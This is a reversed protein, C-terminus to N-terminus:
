RSGFEQREFAFGIKTLPSLRVIEFFEALGKSGYPSFLNKYRVNFSWRTQNEQNVKCGHALGAAFFSASGYPVDLDVAHQKVFDSFEAFTKGRKLMELGVSTHERNVAFMSKTRFCDVLPVWVIVEFHSNNPADRHIPVQDADGPQHIVLNTTRQAVIDPGVLSKVPEFFADLLRETVKLERTCYEVLALRFKNLDATGLGNEHFRDFYDAPSAADFPVLSLSKRFIKERLDDLLDRRQSQFTEFGEREFTVFDNM